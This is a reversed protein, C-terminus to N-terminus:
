VSINHPNGQLNSQQKQFGPHTGRLRASETHSADELKTSKNGELRRLSALTQQLTTNELSTFKVPSKMSVQRFKATLKGRM